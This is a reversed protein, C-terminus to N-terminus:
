AQSQRAAIADRYARVAERAIAKYSLQSQFFGQADRSLQELPQSMVALFKDVFSESSGPRWCAGIRGGDTMVRFSPIDTVIPVVGCAMAEALSFGSGEHHSGLVFYDASNYIDELRSHEIRGLLTVAEALTKSAGIRERVAPLMDAAGYAMYLRAQPVQRLIRTFGELVTLPDKLAILRGVWLIVPDGVMGTRVRAAVRDQCRFNNSGEMIQFISQRKSILGQNVWSTALDRAAFFFGDAARLGWRQLPRVFASWPAEAHHQVVISCDPPLANRMVRLQLPYFLGNLHVVTQVPGPLSDPTCVARVTRHFSAPIEWKRLAPTCSDACFRFRIGDDWFDLDTHFRQAVTVRVGETHLAKAFPRITAYRELLSEPTTLEAEYFYILPVVHLPIMSAHLDDGGLTKSLSM